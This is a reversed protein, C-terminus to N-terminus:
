IEILKRINEYYFYISVISEYYVNSCFIISNLSFLNIGTPIQTLIPGRYGKESTFSSQILTNRRILGCFGLGVTLLLYPM